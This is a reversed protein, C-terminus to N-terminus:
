ENAENEMSRVRSCIKQYRKENSFWTSASIVSSIFLALGFVFFFEGASLNQVIFIPTYGYFFLEELGVIVIFVLFNAPLTLFFHSVFTRDREKEWKVRFREESKEHWETVEMLVATILLIATLIYYFDLYHLEALRPLSLLLIFFVIEFIRRQWKSSKM